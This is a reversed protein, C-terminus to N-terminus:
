PNPKAPPPPVDVPNQQKLGSSFYKTIIVDAAKIAACGMGGYFLVYEEQHASFMSSSSGLYASAVGWCALYVAEFLDWWFRPNKM